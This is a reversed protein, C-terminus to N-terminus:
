SSMLLTIVNQDTIEPKHKKQNLEGELVSIIEIIAQM